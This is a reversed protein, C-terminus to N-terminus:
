AETHNKKDFADVAAMGAFPHHRLRRYTTPNIGGLAILPKTSRHALHLATFYPFPTRARPSRTAFLPSLMVFDVAPTSHARWFQRPTHVSACCRKRPHRRLYLGWGSLAPTNLLPAPVHIATTTRPPRANPLWAFFLPNRCRHRQHWHRAHRPRHPHNYHRYLLITDTSPVCLNHPQTDSRRDDTLVWWQKNRHKTKCPLM